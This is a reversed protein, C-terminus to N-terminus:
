NWQVVYMVVLLVIHYMCLLVISCLVVYWMCKEEEAMLVHIPLHRDAALPHTARRGGVFQLKSARNVFILLM